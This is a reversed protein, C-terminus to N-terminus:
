FIIIDPYNSCYVNLFRKILDIEDRCKYYRVNPDNETNVWDSTGFVHYVNAIEYCIATIPHNADEPEPFGDDSGVEIDINGSLLEELNWDIHDGYPHEDAIFNYEFRTNGYIKFNEVDKYQSIFEKSDKIGGPKVEQLFEGYITKFDTPKQSKIFLSPFYDLKHRVAKGEEIGRYLLKDGCVQVNTYYRM